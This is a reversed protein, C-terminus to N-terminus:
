VFSLDFVYLHMLIAWYHINKIGHDTLFWLFLDMTPLIFENMNADLFNNKISSLFTITVKLNKMTERQQQRQLLMKQFSLSLDWHCLSKRAIKSVCNSSSPILVISWVKTWSTVTNLLFITATIPVALLKKTQTKNKHPLNRCM